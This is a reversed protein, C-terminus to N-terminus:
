KPVGGGKVVALLGLLGTVAAAIYGIPKAVKGIIALVRMAGRWSEFLTLMDHTDRKVAEVMRAHEQLAARMAAQEVRIDSVTKSIEDMRVDGARLERAVYDAFDEPTRPPPM